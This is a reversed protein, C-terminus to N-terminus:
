RPANDPADAGDTKPAGAGDTEPTNAGNESAVPVTGSIQGEDSIEIQEPPVGVLQKFADAADKRQAVLRQTDGSKVLQEILLTQIAAALLTTEYLKEKHAPTLTKWKAGMIGPIVRAVTRGVAKDQAPTTTKGTASERLQLFAVAYATGMDRPAFGQKKLEAEFATLIAPAQKEIDNYAPLIKLMEPNTAGAERVRQRMQEFLDHAGTGPKVRPVVLGSAIPGKTVPATSPADEVGQAIAGGFDSMDPAGGTQARSSSACLLAGLILTAGFRASTHKM